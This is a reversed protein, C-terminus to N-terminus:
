LKYPRESIINEEEQTKIKSLREGVRAVKRM